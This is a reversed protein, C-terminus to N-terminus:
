SSFLIHSECWGEIDNSKVDVTTEGKNTEAEGDSNYLDVIAALGGILTSSDVPTDNELDDRMKEETENKLM